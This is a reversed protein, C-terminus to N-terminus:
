PARIKEILERWRTPVMGALWDPSYRALVALYVFAVALGATARWPPTLWSYGAMLVAVGACWVGTLKLMCQDSIRLAYFRSAVVLCVGAAVAIGGALGWAAALDLRCALWSYVFNFVLVTALVGSGYTIANWPVASVADLPNRMIELVLFGPIALACAILLSSYRAIEAGLWFTIVYHLGSLALLSGAGGAMLAFSLIRSLHRGADERAGMALLRSLHPLMVMGIPAVLLTAASVIGLLSNVAVLVYANGHRNVLWPLSLGQVCICAMTVLRPVGYALLVTGARTLSIAQSTGTAAANPAAACRFFVLCFFLASAAALIGMATVIQKMTMARGALLLIVPVVAVYLFQLANVLHFAMLGRAVSSVLACFAYGFLLISFPGVWGQFSENGFLIFAGFRPFFMLLAICVVLAIMGLALGARIIARRGAPDPDSLRLAIERSIAVPLMLLAVWEVMGRVRMVQSFEGLDQLGWHWRIIGYLVFTVFAVSFQTIATFGVSQLLPPPHIGGQRAPSAYSSKLDDM